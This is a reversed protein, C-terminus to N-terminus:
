KKGIWKLKEQHLWDKIEASLPSTNKIKKSRKEPLRKYLYLDATALLFRVDIDETRKRKPYEEFMRDIFNFVKSIPVCAKDFKEFIRTMLTCDRAYVIVFEKKNVERFKRAFYKVADTSTYKSLIKDRRIYM